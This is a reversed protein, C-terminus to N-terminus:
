CHLLSAAREPSRPKPGLIWTLYSLVVQLVPEPPDSLRKQGEHAGVNMCTHLYVHTPVCVHIYFNFLFGCQNLCFRMGFDVESTANHERERCRAGEGQV